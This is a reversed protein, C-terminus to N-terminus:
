DVGAEIIARKCVEAIRHSDSLLKPVSFRPATNLAILAQTLAEFLDPEALRARVRPAIWDAVSDGQPDFVEIFEVAHDDVYHQFALVTPDSKALDQACQLAMDPTQAEIKQEAWSVGTQFLVKFITM